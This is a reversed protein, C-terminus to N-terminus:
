KKTMTKARKDQNKIGNQVTKTAGQKAHFYRTYDYGIRDV